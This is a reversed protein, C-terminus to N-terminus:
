ALGSGGVCACIAEVSSSRSASESVSRSSRVTSERVNPYGDVTSAWSM